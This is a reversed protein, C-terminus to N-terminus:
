AIVTHDVFTFTLGGEPTVAGQLDALSVDVLRVTTHDPGAGMFGGFTLVTDAGDQARGVERPSIAGEFRFVDGAGFGWVTNSGGQRGETITVPGDGGIGYLDDGVGGSLLDGAATLGGVLIDNGAGGSVTHASAGFGALLIDDGETGTVTPSADTGIFTAM